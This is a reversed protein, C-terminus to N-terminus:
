PPEEPMAVLDCCFRSKDAEALVLIERALRLAAESPLADPHEILSLLQLMRCRRQYGPSTTDGACQM